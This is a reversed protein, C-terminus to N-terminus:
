ARQGCYRLPNAVSPEYSVAGFSAFTPQTLNSQMILALGAGHNLKLSNPYRNDEAAGLLRDFEADVRWLGAMASVEDPLEDM